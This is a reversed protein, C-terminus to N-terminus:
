ESRKIIAWKDSRITYKQLIDEIKYWAGIGDLNREEIMGRVHYAASNTSRCFDKTVFRVQDICGELYGENKTAAIEKCMSLLEQTGGDWGQHCKEIFFETTDCEEAQCDVKRSFEFYEVLAYNVGLGFQRDSVAEDRNGYFDMGPSISGYGSKNLRITAPLNGMSGHRSETKYNLVRMWKFGNQSGIEAARRMVINAAQQPTHSSLHFYSGVMWKYVDRQREFYGAEGDNSARHYLPGATTCAAMTLITGVVIYRTLSKDARMARKAM